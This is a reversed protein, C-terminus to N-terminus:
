YTAQHDIIFEITTVQNEKVEVPYINNQGDFLNAYYSEKEKVFVSYLGPKLEVAFTGNQDSVVKAVRKTQIQQYFPPEGQVQALNTLGHIHLERKVGQGTGPPPADPSPMFDGKKFIVKGRIGQTMNSLAQKQQASQGQELRKQQQNSASDPRGKGSSAGCAVVGATAVTLIFKALM